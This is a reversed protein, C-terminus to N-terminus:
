RRKTTWCYRDAAYLGVQEKALIPIHGWIVAEKQTAVVKDIIKRVIVKKDTLDLNRLMEQAGAVLEELSLGPKNVLELEIKALNTNFEDRKKAIEKVQEKYLRESMVEQGYAKIYRREENDLSQLRKKLVNVEDKLPSATTLWRKAQEQILSPDDLLKQIKGWVLADLVPANIGGEYCQRQLPFRNLRDTCRYYTHGRGGPDGSRAYGCACEVVGIVLYENKKNNRSNIRKNRALKEQVRDYLDRSIIAPVKILMWEEKPKKKRSGKAIKRYKINPNQPTTTPVSESKNYYHDGCYTSDKLLRDLSGSSWGDSKGKPPAIGHEFLKRRVEHMSLDEDIWTFIQKVAAAQKKNKTFYCDQADPGHKVRYHYDYGYKPNYGLLKKNEKVKRVKGLRMREVIKTREYEHFLGMINGALNAEDTDGNIDHLSLTEINYKKLEDFVIAQHFFIRSIRGRDYFYLIEFIGENADQRMRDLEPRALFAGSWGDDKYECEPLLVNGDKKIRERLEMLQNDITEEEEQNATSVRAYLGARKM